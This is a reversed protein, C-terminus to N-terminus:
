TIGGLRRELLHLSMTQHLTFCSDFISLFEITQADTQISVTQFHSVTGWIRCGQFDYRSQVSNLCLSSLRGQHYEHFVGRHHKALSIPHSSVGCSSNIGLIIAVFSFWITLYVRCQSACQLGVVDERGKVINWGFIPTEHSKNLHPVMVRDLFSYWHYVFEMVQLWIYSIEGMNSCVCRYM